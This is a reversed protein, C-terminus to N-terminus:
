PDILVPSKDTSEMKKIKKKIWEKERAEEGETRKKKIENKM